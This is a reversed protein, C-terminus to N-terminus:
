KNENAYNKIEEKLTSLLIRTGTIRQGSADDTFMPIKGDEGNVIRYSSHAPDKKLFLLVEENKKLTPLHSYIEGVDGVEGGPCVVEINRKAGGGKICDDVQLTSRTFINTKRDNWFSENQIVKGTLIEDASKAMERLKASPPQAFSRVAVVLVLVTVVLTNHFKTHV